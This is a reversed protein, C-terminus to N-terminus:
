RCDAHADVSIGVDAAVYAETDGTSLLWLQQHNRVHAFAHLSVPITKLIEPHVSTSNLQLDGEQVKARYLMTREWDTKTGDRQRNHANM